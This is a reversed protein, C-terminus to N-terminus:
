GALDAFVNVLVYVFVNSKIVMSLGFNKIALFSKTHDLLGLKNADIFFHHFFFFKGEIM